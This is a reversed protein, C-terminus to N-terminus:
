LIDPPTGAWIKAGDFRAPLLNQAQMHGLMVDISPQVATRGLAPCEHGNATLTWPSERFMRMLEACIEPRQEAIERRVTVVHNVPILRHRAWFSAVASPIDPFVTRFAPDLTFDNGVIVADLADERLMTLLDSGPGLRTVFDPDRAEAVHAGEQTFWRMAAPPLAFSEALIGRLWVGTTQSYARVGIRKGGLDAPSAIASDARCILATEQFRAAMVVPLLVVPKDHARAQLFTALALECVDFEQARVMPAFARSIAPFALYEPRFKDTRIRGSQLAETHQYSGLAIRLAPISDPM